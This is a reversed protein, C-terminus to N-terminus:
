GNSKESLWRPLGKEELRDNLDRRYRRPTGESAREVFLRGDLHDLEHQICVSLLGDVEREHTKGGLDQYTLRVVRPRIVRARVEPISLCGEEFPVRDESHSLIKPNIFVEAGQTGEPVDAVFVRLPVAIQIAALGIGGEAYMTDIMDAVLKRIEETIEPIPQSVTKLRPDGLVIVDRIM